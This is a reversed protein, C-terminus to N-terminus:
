ECIWTRRKSHQRRSRLQPLETSLGIVQGMMWFVCEHEKGEEKLFRIRLESSSQGFLKYKRSSSSVQRKM